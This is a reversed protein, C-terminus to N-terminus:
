MTGRLDLIRRLVRNEFVELRNELNAMVAFNKQRYIFPFLSMYTKIANVARTGVTKISGHM